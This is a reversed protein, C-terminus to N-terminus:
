RTPQGNITLRFQGGRERLSTMIQAAFRDAESHTLNAEGVFGGNRDNIATVTYRPSGLFTRGSLSIDVTVM